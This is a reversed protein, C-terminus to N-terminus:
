KKSMLNIKRAKVIRIFDLEKEEENTLFILDLPLEYMVEHLIKRITKPQHNEKYIILLDIDCSPKVKTLLSGFLYVEINAVEKLLSYVKKELYKDM